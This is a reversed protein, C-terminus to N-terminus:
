EESLGQDNRWDVNSEHNLWLKLRTLVTLYEDILRRQTVHLGHYPAGALSDRRWGLRAYM